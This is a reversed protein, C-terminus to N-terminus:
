SNSFRKGDKVKCLETTLTSPLNHSGQSRVIEVGAFLEDILSQVAPSVTASLLVLQTEDNCSSRIRKADPLFGQDLMQDAEDFVLTTLAELSVLNRDLLQRLRGPTAVLIEFTGAVNRKAVDLATGGLVTRVRLRTEHTFLKFVKAVQEGLERSPVVVAARPRSEASVAMGEDEFTKLMHLLPLAYALTKGSGTEAIGVVSAGELIKPMLRSQIDTLNKLERQKLTSKLSPLLPMASFTRM